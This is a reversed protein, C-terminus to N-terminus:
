KQKSGIEKKEGKEIWCYAPKSNHQPHVGDMFLIKDGPAKENKLQEYKEVFEKQKEPEAKGPVITTKKYVFGLRNLTHAMGEPTYNVKFTQKVYEVIEKATSYTNKRLHEKM